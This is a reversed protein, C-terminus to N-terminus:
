LKPLRMFEILGDVILNSTNGNGLWNLDPIIRKSNYDDTWKRVAILQADLLGEVSLQMSCNSAYSQPRETYDRPVLVPTGLLAPEEQGTGSDSLLLESHYVASLYDPYNMLPVIKVKGVDIEFEAIKDVMRKFYLCRVDGDLMNAFEFLRTLRERSNFNEPRHVDMLVGQRTKPTEGESLHLKTMIERAPEVVTNGIVYIPRQINEKLLNQKYDEHYVFFVDSCVDCVTRNIEELMRRDYSRMGSEIHGITYGEKKLPLSVAASNSDGLFLIIVNKAPRISQAQLLEIVATSLYSLQEFHNKSQVGTSLQHDPARINLDRFFADSLYTDYHQGTHIMVHRIDPHEDFRRFVESMRIFDPRIGTITVVTFM